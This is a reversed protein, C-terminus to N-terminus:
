EVGGKEHAGEIGPQCYFPEVSFHSRFATWRDSEIRSRTFGLVRAVAAKLNDYRIKGFPVGGLVEFAHVHGELFSEQGGSAFIRHVARGSFSMRLAFLYVVIEEGCLRITVDGFDVEAEEGPRHTQPIFVNAPGRGAEIRIQPKREAVYDRVTQYAIGVLDYEEILRTYIRKITHRQKRPADLDARLM